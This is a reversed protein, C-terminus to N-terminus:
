LQSITPLTVTARMKDAPLGSLFSAIGDPQLAATDAIDLMEGRLRVLRAILSTLRRGHGHGFMSRDIRVMLRAVECQFEAVADNYRLRGPRLPAIHDIIRPSWIDDVIQRLQDESDIATLEIAPQMESPSARRRRKLASVNPARVIGISFASLGVKREILTPRIVTWADSFRRRLEEDVNRKLTGLDLRRNPDSDRHGRDYRLFSYSVGECEAAISRMAELNWGACDHLLSRSAQTPVATRTHDGTLALWGTTMDESAGHVLLLRMTRSPLREKRADGLPALTSGKTALSNQSQRSGDENGVVPRRRRKEVRRHRHKHRETAM